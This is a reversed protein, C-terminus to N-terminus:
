DELDSHERHGFAWTKHEKEQLLVNHNGKTQARESHEDKRYICRWAYLCDLEPVLPATIVQGRTKPTRDARHANCVGQLFSM